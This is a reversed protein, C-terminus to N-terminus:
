RTLTSGYCEPLEIMGRTTVAKWLPAEWERLFRAIERWTRTALIESPNASDMEALSSPSNPHHLNRPLRNRHILRDPFARPDDGHLHLTPRCRRDSM